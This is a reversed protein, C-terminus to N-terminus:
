VERPDEGTGSNDVNEESAGEEEDELELLEGQFNRLIRQFLAEAPVGDEERFQGYVMGDVKVKKLSLRSSDRSPVFSEPSSFLYAIGKSRWKRIDIRRITDFPVVEGGPAYYADSDVKMSRRSTRVLFFIAVLLLVGSGIGFYLQEQVKGPDYSKKPILSSWNRKDTYSAWLPPIAKNGEEAVAKSYVEYDALVPPWKTDHSVGAPLIIDPDPFVKQSASEKEWGEASWQKEAFKDEAKEFAKYSYYVENKRPYGVRWDKLFLVLFVGFMLAMAGARFYFWRTPRCEIVEEGSM